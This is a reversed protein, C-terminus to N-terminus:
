RCQLCLCATLSRAVSRSLSRSLAHFPPPCSQHSAATRSSTSCLASTCVTTSLRITFVSAITKDGIFRRWGVSKCDPTNGNLTPAQATLVDRAQACCCQAFRRPSVASCATSGEPGGETTVPLSSFFFFFFFILLWLSRYLGRLM